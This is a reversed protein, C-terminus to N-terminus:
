TKNPRNNTAGYDEQSNTGGIELVNTRGKVRVRLGVNCGMFLGRSQRTYM